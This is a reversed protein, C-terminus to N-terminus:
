RGYTVDIGKGFWDGHASKTKYHGKGILRASGKGAARLGDVDGTIDISVNTGKVAVKGRGEFYYNNGDQRKFGFGSVEIDDRRDAHVIVTGRGEASIRGDGRVIAQGDGKATMAGRGEVHVKDLNRVSQQSFSMTPLGVLVIATSVVISGITRKIM